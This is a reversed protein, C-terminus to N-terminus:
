PVIVEVTFPITYFYQSNKFSETVKNPTGDPNFAPIAIVYDLFNKTGTNVTAILTKQPNKLNVYVGTAYSMTNATMNSEASVSVYFTSLGLNNDSPTFYCEVTKNGIGIMRFPVIINPTTTSAGVGATVGQSPSDFSYIGTPDSASKIINLSTLSSTNNLTTYYYKTTRMNPSYFYRQTLTINSNYCINGLTLRHEFEMTQGPALNSVNVYVNSVNTANIDFGIGSTSYGNNNADLGQMVNQVVAYPLTTGSSAYDCYVRGTITSASINKVRFQRFFYITPYYTSLTAPITYPTTMTNSLIELSTTNNSDNYETGNSPDPTNSPNVIGDISISAEESAFCLTSFLM